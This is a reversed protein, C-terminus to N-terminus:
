PFRGNYCRGEKPASASISPLPPTGGPFANLGVQFQFPRSISLSIVNRRSFRPLIPSQRLNGLCCTFMSSDQPGLPALVKKVAKRLLGKKSRRRRRKRPLRPIELLPQVNRKGMAMRGTDESIEVLFRRLNEQIPVDRRFSPDHCKMPRTILRFRVVGSLDSIESRAPALGM